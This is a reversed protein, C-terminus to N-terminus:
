ASRAALAGNAYHGGGSPGGVAAPDPAVDAEPLYDQAEEVPTEQDLELSSGTFMRLTSLDLGAASPVREVLDEGLLRYLGNTKVHVKLWGPADDFYEPPLQLASSPAASVFAPAAAAEPNLM